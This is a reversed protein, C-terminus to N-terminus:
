SFKVLCMEIALGPGFGLIICNGRRNASKFRDLIFLVTPSSMNGCEALVSRSEAVAADDLSIAKQVADIIRPGGPHIAWMDINELRLSHHGLFQRVQSLLHSDILDAIRNSLTMTFGHNGVTWSMVELSDPVIFSSSGVISIAQEPSLCDSTVVLAASGDAFLSNAVLGDASWGYQFHLSCLEVACLLVHAQSNGNVIAAAVNLANMAGHCGMFGVNLRSIEPPLGLQNILAIDVGPAGFGTCSVTILHTIQKPHLNVDGLAHASSKAALPLAHLAYLRM